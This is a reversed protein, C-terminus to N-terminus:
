RGNFRQVAIANHDWSLKAAAGFYVADLTGAPGILLFPTVHGAADFAQGSRVLWLGRDTWAIGDRSTALRTGARSEYAMLYQGGARKVDVGGADHGFVPNAPYKHWHLGDRSTAYGVGRTSTPSKPADPDPAGMPLDKRGDYWMKFLGDEFLVAPRGVSLADWAGAPGSSLVTGRSRWQIGDMATALAIQDTVGQAARTFFLYWTTGVRVISPDNVHNATPDELAIGKRDWHIGDRSETYLIRDHGDRGQGGYWMRYTGGEVIVDPAYVNGAGHPASEWEGRGRLVITPRARRPAYPDAAREMAHALMAALSIAATGLGILLLRRRPM